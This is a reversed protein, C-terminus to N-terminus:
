YGKQEWSFSMGQTVRASSSDSNDNVTRHARAFQRTAEHPRATVSHCPCLHLHRSHVKAISSQIAAGRRQQFSHSRFRITADWRHRSSQGFHCRSISEKGILANIFLFEQFRMPQLGKLAHLIFTNHVTDLIRSLDIERRVLLRTSKAREVLVEQSTEEQMGHQCHRRGSCAKSNQPRFEMSTRLITRFQGCLLLCLSRNFLLFTIPPKISVLRHIFQRFRTGRLQDINCVALAVDLLKKIRSLALSSVYQNSGTVIADEFIAIPHPIGHSIRRGNSRLFKYHPCSWAM